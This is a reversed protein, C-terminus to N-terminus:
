IADKEPVIYETTEIETVEVVPEAATPRAAIDNNESVSQLYEELKKAAYALALVLVQQQIAKGVDSSLFGKAKKKSAETPEAHPMQESSLTYSDEQEHVYSDYDIYPTSSRAPYAAAVFTGHPESKLKKDSKGKKGTKAKKKVGM